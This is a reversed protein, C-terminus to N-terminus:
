LIFLSFSKKSKPYIIEYFIKNNYFFCKCFGRLYKIIYTSIKDKASSLNNYYEFVNSEKVIVNVEM